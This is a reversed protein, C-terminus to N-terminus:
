NKRSEHHYINPIDLFQHLRRKWSFGKKGSNACFTALVAGFYTKSKKFFKIM